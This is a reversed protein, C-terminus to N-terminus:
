ERVYIEDEYSLKIMSGIYIGCIMNMISVDALPFILYSIFLYLLVAIGSLLLSSYKKKYLKLLEKFIKYFGLILLFAMILGHNYLLENFPTMFSRGMGFYWVNTQILESYKASFEGPGMGLLFVAPSKSILDKIVMLLGEIKPFQLFELGFFYSFSSYIYRIHRNMFGFYLGINQLLLVTIFITAFSLTVTSLINQKKIFILKIILITFLLAVTQAVSQALFIVFFIGIFFPLRYKIDIKAFAYFILAIGTILLFVTSTSTTGVIFDGSFAVNKLIIEPIFAVFIIMVQLVGICFILYPFWKIIFKKDLVVIAFITFLFFQTYHLFTEIYTTPDQMYAFFEFFIFLLFFVIITVLKKTITNLQKTKSFLYIFVTIFLLIQILQGLTQISKSVWGASLRLKNIFLLSQASTKPNYIFNMFLVSHFVIFFTINKNKFVMLILFLLLLLWGLRTKAIFLCIYTSFLGMLLMELYLLLQRPHYVCSKLIVKETKQNM